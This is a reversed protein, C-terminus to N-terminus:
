DFGLSTIKIGKWLLRIGTAEKGWSSAHDESMRNGGPKSGLGGHILGQNIKWTVQDDWIWSCSDHPIEVSNRV